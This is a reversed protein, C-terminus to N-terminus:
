GTQRKGVINMEEGTQEATPYVRLRKTQRNTQRDTREDIQKDENLCVPVYECGKM